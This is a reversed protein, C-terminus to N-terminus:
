VRERCSARGIQKSQDDKIASTKLIGYRRLLQDAQASKQLKIGLFTCIVLGIVLYSLRSWVKM